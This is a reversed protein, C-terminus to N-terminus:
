SIMTDKVINSGPSRIGNAVLHDYIFRSLSSKDSALRATPTWPYEEALYPTGDEYVLRRWSYAIDITPNSEITQVLSSIHNSDYTNDDDLYCIYDGNAISIGFNRLFGLKSTSYFSIFERQHELLAVINNQRSKKASYFGDFSTPQVVLAIHHL